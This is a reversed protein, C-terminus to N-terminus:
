VCLKQIAHYVTFYLIFHCLLERMECMSVQLHESFQGIAFLAANRVLLEPDNVGTVCM